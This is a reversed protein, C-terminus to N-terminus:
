DCWISGWVNSSARLPLLGRGTVDVRQIAGYNSSVADSDFDIGVEDGARGYERNSQDDPKRSCAM